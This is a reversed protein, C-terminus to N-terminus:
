KAFTVPLYFKNNSWKFKPNRASHLENWRYYENTKRRFEEMETFAPDNVTQNVITRFDPNTWLVYPHGWCLDCIPNVNLTHLWYAFQDEQRYLLKEPMNTEIDKM